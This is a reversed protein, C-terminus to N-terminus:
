NKNGDGTADVDEKELDNPLNLQRIVQFNLFDTM